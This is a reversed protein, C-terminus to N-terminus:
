SRTREEHDVIKKGFYEDVDIGALAESEESPIDAPHKFLRLKSTHVVSVKDTTLDRVKVIDRVIYLSLRWQAAIYISIRYSTQLSNPYKLLVYQGVELKTM